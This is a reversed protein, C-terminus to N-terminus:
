LHCLHLMAVYSIAREGTDNRIYYPHFTQTAADEDSKAFYDARWTDMYSLMSELFDRSINLNVDEDFTLTAIIAPPDTSSSFVVDFTM